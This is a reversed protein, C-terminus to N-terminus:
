LIRFRSTENKIYKLVSASDTWFVSDQLELHLEKKWLVDMRSAMTAAILEMLPITIYKTPAVRSKGMIFACHTQSHANHLLLYTVTGYGDKSAESFNHLQAITVDGFNPPKLCRALEFSELHNKCGAPGNQVVLEPLIDDWGVNGKCLDQLIKKASLVVPSVIGLPDYSDM